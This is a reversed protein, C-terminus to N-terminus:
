QLTIWSSKFICVFALLALKSSCGIQPFVRRLFVIDSHCPTVKELQQMSPCISCLLVLDQDISGSHGNRCSCLFEKIPPCCMQASPWQEVNINPAPHLVALTLTEQRCVPSQNSGSRGQPCALQLPSANSFACLRTLVQTVMDVDIFTWKTTRSLCDWKVSGSLIPRSLIYIM